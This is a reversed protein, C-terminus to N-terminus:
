EGVNEILAPFGFQIANELQRIADTANGSLRIVELQHRKEM